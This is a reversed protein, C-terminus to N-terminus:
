YMFNPKEFVQTYYEIREKLLSSDACSTLFADWDTKNEDLVVFECVKQIIEVETTSEGIIEDYM